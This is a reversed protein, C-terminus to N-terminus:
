QNILNCLTICPVTLTIGPSAVVHTEAKFAEGALIPWAQLVGQPLYQGKGITLITWIYSTVYCLGSDPLRRHVPLYAAFPYVPTFHGGLSISFHM